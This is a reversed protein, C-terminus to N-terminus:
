LKFGLKDNEILYEMFDFDIPHDLDFCIHNMKYVITKDTIVTKYNERFFKRKYFYFSANMDYVKPTTQRSLFVGGDKVLGFFNDKKEEVMNFYPNRNADNVSFINNAEENNELLELADKLDQVTRLPSTVDLDLVYDYEKENKDEAYKKVDVIADLKGAADTALFDPRIYSVDVEGRFKMVTSKIAESDTSLIIDVNGTKIEEKFKNATKLTYFILPSGKIEKINKGKIGKSGGRACVTLLIDM